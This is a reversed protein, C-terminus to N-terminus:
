RIVKFKIGKLGKVKFNKNFSVNNLKSIFDHFSEPSLGIDLQDDIFKSISKPTPKFIVKCENGIIILDRKKPIRGFIITKISKNVYSNMTISITKIFLKRSVKVLLEDCFLVGTKSGDMTVGDRIAKEVEEIELLSKRNTQTLLYPSHKKFISMVKNSDWSQMALQEDVNLGFVQLFERCGESINVPKLDLDYCIGIAKISEGSLEILDNISVVHGNAMFNGSSYAYGSLGQLFEVAWNPPSKESSKVRMTLEFGVGSLKPGDWLMGYLESLKHTIFHWYDGKKNYYCYIGDDINFDTTQKDNDNLLNFKFDPERKYFELIASIITKTNKEEKKIFPKWKLSENVLEEFTEPLDNQIEKENNNTESQKSIDIKENESSIDEINEKANSENEKVEEKINFKFEKKFNEEIHLKSVNSTEDTIKEKSEPKEFNSISIDIKNTKEFSETIEEKDNDTEVKDDNIMKDTQNVLNNRKNEFLEKLSISQKNEVNVDENVNETFFKPNKAGKELMSRLTVKESKNELVEKSCDDIRDLTNAADNKQHKKESLEIEDSKQEIEVERNISDNLREDSM